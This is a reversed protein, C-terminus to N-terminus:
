NSAPTVSPQVHCCCGVWGTGCGMKRYFMSQDNKVAAGLGWILCICVDTEPSCSPAGQQTSTATAAERIAMSPAWTTNVLRMASVYKFLPEPAYGVRKTQRRCAVCVIRRDLGRVGLNEFPFYYCNTGFRLRHAPIKSKQKIFNPSKENDLSSITTSTTNLRGLLHEFAISVMM